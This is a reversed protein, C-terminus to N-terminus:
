AKKNQRAQEPQFDPPSGVQALEGQRRRSQRLCPPNTPHLDVFARM